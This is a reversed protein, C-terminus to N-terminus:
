YMFSEVSPNVVSRSKYARNLLDALEREELLREPSGVPSPNRKLHAIRNQLREFTSLIGKDAGLTLKRIMKGTGPMKVVGTKGMRCRDSSQNTGAVIDIARLSGTKKAKRIEEYERSVPSNDMYHTIAADTNDHDRVNDMFFDAPLGDEPLYSKHMADFRADEDIYGDEDPHVMVPYKGASKRGTVVALASRDAESGNETEQIIRKLEAAKRLAAVIQERTYKM